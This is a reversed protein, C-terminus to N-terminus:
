SQKIDDVNYDLRNIMNVTLDLNNMLAQDKDPHLNKKIENIGSEVLVSAMDRYYRKHSDRYRTDAIDDANSYTKHGGINQSTIGQPHFTFIADLLHKITDPSFIDSALERQLAKFYQLVYEEGVLNFSLTSKIIEPSLNSYIERIYKKDKHNSTGTIKDPTTNSIKIMDSLLVFGQMSNTIRSIIDNKAKSLRKTETKSRNGVGFEQNYHGKLFDLIKREFQTIEDPM